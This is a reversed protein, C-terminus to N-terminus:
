TNDGGNPDVGVFTIKHASAAVTFRTSYSAYSTGAPKITGVLGGDVLVQITQYSFQYNARQAALFSLSYSGSALRVAHSGSGYTQPLAGQTSPPAPPKGSTFGSGNGAVGAAGAFTWPSGSPDYRFANYTGTGVSPQEFGPDSIPGPPLTS